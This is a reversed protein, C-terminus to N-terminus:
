PLVADREPDGPADDAGARSAPPRLGAARAARGAIRRAARLIPRAVLLRADRSSQLFRRRFLLLLFAAVALDAPDHMATGALLALPLFVDYYEHMVIQYAHDPAAVVLTVGWRRARRAALMAYLALALIPPLWGLLALMTALGALELPFVIRAAVRETSIRPRRAAFTAVQARRDASRDGLQHALNGRIGYALAWLALAGLWLPDPTAGAAAFAALGATLTPFLQAGAGDALVGAFGRQKLRVPAVSYLTFSLWAAAYCALLATQDRWIWAFCLGVAISLALAFARVARPQGAMRNAKGAAADAGIDTVDNVISVYAAGPIMAALVVLLALAHPAVAEGLMALTLLFGCLISVLKHGWWEGARIVAAVKRLGARVSM